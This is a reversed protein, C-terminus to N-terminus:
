VVWKDIFSKHINYTIHEYTINFMFCCEQITGGIMLYKKIAELIIINLKLNQKIKIKKKKIKTSTINQNINNDLLIKKPQNQFNYTICPDSLLLNKYEALLQTRYKKDYTIFIESGRTKNFLSGSLDYIIGFDVILDYEYKYATKENDFHAIKEIIPEIGDNRMQEIYKRLFINKAKHLHSLHRNNKGKGVYIPLHKCKVITNANYNYRPDFYIYVFYENKMM